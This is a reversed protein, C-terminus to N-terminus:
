AVIERALEGVGISPQEGHYGKKEFFSEDVRIKESQPVNECNALKLHPM